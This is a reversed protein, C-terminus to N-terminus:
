YGRVPLSPQLKVFLVLNGDGQFVLWTSTIDSSPGPITWHTAEATPQTPDLSSHLVLQATSPDLFLFTPRANSKRDQQSPPLSRLPIPPAADFVTHALDKILSSLHHGSPRQPVPPPPPRSAPAGGEIGRQAVPALAIWAGGKLEFQLGFVYHSAFLINGSGVASDRLTLFPPDNALLLSPQSDPKPLRALYPALYDTPSYLVHGQRSKITLLGDRSYSMVPDYNDGERGTGSSWRAAGDKASRFCLIGNPALSMTTGELHIGGAGSSSQGRSDLQLQGASYLLSRGPAAEIGILWSARGTVFDDQVSCNQVQGPDILFATPPANTPSHFRSTDGVFTTSPDIKNGQM